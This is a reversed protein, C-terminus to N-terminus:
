TMDLEKCSYGWAGRDTPNELHCHQLPNCNGEGPSQGPHLMLGTDEANVPLNKVVSGDPFGLLSYIVGKFSM